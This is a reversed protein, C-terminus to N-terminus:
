PADCMAHAVNYIAALTVKLDLYDILRDLLHCVM